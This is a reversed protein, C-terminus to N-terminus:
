KHYWRVLQERKPYMQTDPHCHLIYDDRKLPPPCAWIFVTSFGRSKVSGLYALLLEHYIKTRLKRSLSPSPTPSRLPSM